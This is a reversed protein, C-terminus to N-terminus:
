SLVYIDGTDVDIYLDGVMSGSISGPPGHGWWWGTGRPADLGSWDPIEDTDIWLFGSPPTYPPPSTPSPADPVPLAHAWDLVGPTGGGGNGSSAALVSPVFVPFAPNAGEFLVWGDAPGTPVDGIIKDVLVPVDGYVQPVAVRYRTGEITLLRARYAGGLDNGSM